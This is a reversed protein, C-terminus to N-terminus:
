NNCLQQIVYFSISRLRHFWLRFIQYRRTKRTHPRKLIYSFSSNPVRIVNIGKTILYLDFSSFLWACSKNISKSICYLTDQSLSRFIEGRKIKRYRCLDVLTNCHVYVQINWVSTTIPSAFISKAWNITKCKINMHIRTRNECLNNKKM